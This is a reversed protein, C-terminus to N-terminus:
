FDSWHSFEFFLTVLPRISTVQGIHESWCQLIILAANMAIQLTQLSSNLIPPRVVSHWFGSREVSKSSGGGGGRGPQWQLRMSVSPSCVACRVSKVQRQTHYINWNLGNFRIWYGRVRGAAAHSSHQREDATGVVRLVVAAAVVRRFVLELFVSSPRVAAAERRREFRRSEAVLRPSLAGRRGDGLAPPPGSAVVALQQRRGPGPSSTACYGRHGILELQVQLRRCRSLKCRVDQRDFVTSTQNSRRRQFQGRHATM